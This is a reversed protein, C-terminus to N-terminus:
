CRRWRSLDTVSCQRSCLVEEHKLPKLLVSPRIGARVRSRGAITAAEGLTLHKLDKGFYVQAAEKVGRVAVAGRQGLYIENCYLAFIDEKSLRRELALALMAESYKRKLTKESSLYTNKVLQQTITSGGQALREDAANRLVARALGAIDVGSHDFFRRDEIALIANVLVTPIEKFTLVERKGSKYSLDNSLPEPELALSNLRTGDSVIESIQDGEFKVIVSGPQKRQSGTPQIEIADANVIFGGSWVESARSEVYGARRLAHVLKEISYTQGPRLIRPAAYLGPRSSLYGSALRADIIRSYYKYSRLFADGAIVLGIAILGISFRLLLCHRTQRIIELLSQGSERLWAFHFFRTTDPVSTVEISM